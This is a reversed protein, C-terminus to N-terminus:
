RIDSQIMPFCVTFLCYFFLLIFFFCNVKRFFHKKDYTNAKLLRYMALTFNVPNAKTFRLLVLTLLALTSKKEHFTSGLFDELDWIQNLNFYMKSTLRKNKGNLSFHEELHIFLKKCSTQRVCNPPVKMMWKVSFFKSNTSELNM